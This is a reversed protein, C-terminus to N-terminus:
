ELSRFYNIKLFAHDLIDQFDFNREGCFLFIAGLLDSIEMQLHLNNNLEFAELLENFEEEIKSIKGIEGKM